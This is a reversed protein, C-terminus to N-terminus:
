LSRHLFLNYHSLKVHKLMYALGRAAMNFLRALPHACNPVIPRSLACDKDKPMCQAYGLSGDKSPACYRDRGFEACDAVCKQLLQDAGVAVSKYHRTDEIFVRVLRQRYLVADEFLPNRPTYRNKDIPVGVLYGTIGTQVDKVALVDSIPVSGPFQNQHSQASLQSELWPQFNHLPAAPLGLKERL